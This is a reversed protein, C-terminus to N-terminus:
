KYSPGINVSHYHFCFKVGMSELASTYYWNGTAKVAARNFYPLGADETYNYRACWERHVYTPLFWMSANVLVCNSLFPGGKGVWVGM